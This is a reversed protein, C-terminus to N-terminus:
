ALGLLERRTWGRLFVLFRAVLDRSRVIGLAGLEVRTGEGLHADVRGCYLLWKRVEVDDRGVAGDEGAVALEGHGDGRNFGEYFSYRVGGHRGDGLREGEELM